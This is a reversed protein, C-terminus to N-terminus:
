ASTKSKKKMLICTRKTHGLRKCKNCKKKKEWPAPRDPFQKNLEELTLKRSPDNDDDPSTDRKRKNGSHKDGRKLFKTLLSVLQATDSQAPASSSSSDTTDATYSNARDENLSSNRSEFAMVQKLVDDKQLTGTQVSLTNVIDKYKPSLGTIYAVVELDSFQVNLDKVKKFSRELRIKFQMGTENKTQKLSLIELVVAYKNQMSKDQHFNKLATWAALGDGVHNEILSQGLDSEAKIISTAIGQFLLKNRRDYTKKYGALFDDIEAQTTLNAPTVSPTETETGNIITDLDEPLVMVFKKAWNIYDDSNYHPVNNWLSKSESSSSSSSSTTAVPAASAPQPNNTRSSRPGDGANDSSYAPGFTVKHTFDKAHILKALHNHSEQPLYFNGHQIMLWKQFLTRKKTRALRFNLLIIRLRYWATTTINASAVNLQWAQYASWQYAYFEGLLHCPWVLAPANTCSTHTGYQGPNVLTIPGACPQFISEMSPIAVIPQVNVYSPGSYWIEDIDPAILAQCNILFKTSKSRCYLTKPSISLDSNITTSTGCILYSLFLLLVCYFGHM